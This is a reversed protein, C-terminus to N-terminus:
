QRVRPLPGLDNLTYNQMQRIGDAYKQPGVNPLRILNDVDLFQAKLFGRSDAGSMQAGILNRQQVMLPNLIRSGFSNTAQHDQQTILLAPGQAETYYPKILSSPPMHHSQWCAGSDLGRGKGAYTSGPLGLLKRQATVYAHSGGIQYPAVPQNAQAECSPDQTEAVADKLADAISAGTSVAACALIAGGLIKTPVTPFATLARGVELATTGNPDTNSLPNNNSYAYTNLGGALGIPDSQMYRGTAPNYERWRNQALGTEPDFVQGPFRLNYAFQGLSSPNEDPPTAGFPEGGWTWVLQGSTNVIARPTNLQDPYVYYINPAGGPTGPKIVAVPTFGLWVTEQIPAGAADYEGLLQGNKDYVYNTTGSCSSVKQLRYGESDYFAAVSNTSTLQGTSAYEFNTTNCAGIPATISSTHGDLGYTYSASGSPGQSTLLQNSGTSVSYGYAAGDVRVLTRNGNEDYGYGYSTLGTAGTLRNLDDYAYAQSGAGDNAGAVRDDADYSLTRTVAGVSHSTMRGNLDFTRVVQSGNGLTWSKLAGLPRYAVASVVVVGDVSISSVRGTTANFSYTVTRGSPYRVSAIKRGPAYGYSVALTVGNQTLSKSTMNGLIDHTYNAQFAFGPTTGTVQVLKDTEVGSSGYAYEYTTGNGSPAEVGIATIRGYPDYTYATTVGAANTKSLLRDKEDYAYLTTGTDPSNQMVLNGNADYEYATTLGRPDTVASVRGLADYAYQVQSSAGGPSAPPLTKQVVRGRSDYAFGVSVGRPSTVQTLEGTAGYQYVTTPQSQAHASVTAGLALAAIAVAINQALKTKM